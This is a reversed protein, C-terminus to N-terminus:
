LISGCSEKLIRYNSIKIDLLKQSSTQKFVGKTESPEYITILNDRAGTSGRGVQDQPNTEWKVAERKQVEYM